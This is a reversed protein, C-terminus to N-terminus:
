MSKEQDQTLRPINVRMGMRGFIGDYIARIANAFGAIKDNCYRIKVFSIIVANLLSRLLTRRKHVRDIYIIGRIEYYIRWPPSHSVYRTRGMINVEHFIFRKHHIISSFCRYLKFGTKQVRYNFEQEGCFVLESLPVGVQDIISLPIFLGINAGGTTELVRGHLEPAFEYYVKWEDGLKVGVPETFFRGDPSVNACWTVANSLYEHTDVANLLQEVTDNRLRADDDVSFVADYGQELATRVGVELGGMHGTNHGLEILQVYPYHAKVYGVTDDDSGNDIVIM